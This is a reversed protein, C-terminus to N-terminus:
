NQDQDQDQAERRTGQAKHRTDQAKHRTGRTEHRTDRTEYRADRAEHRTGRTERRADRTERRAGRTERRADRTEHRAGRAERRAGRALSRVGEQCFRLFKAYYIQIEFSSTTSWTGRRPVSQYLVFVSSRETMRKSSPSRHSEFGRCGSGCDPARGVSSREGHRSHLPILLKQSQM